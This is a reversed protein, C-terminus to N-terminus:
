FGRLDLLEFSSEVKSRTSSCGSAAVVDCLFPFYHFYGCIRIARKDHNNASSKATKGHDTRKFPGLRSHDEDALRIVKQKLKQEVLHRCRHQDRRVDNRRQALRQALLAIDRHRMHVPSSGPTLGSNFYSGSHPLCGM